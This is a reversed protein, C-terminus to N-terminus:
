SPTTMQQTGKMQAEIGDIASQPTGGLKLFVKTMPWTAWFWIAAQAQRQEVPVGELLVNLLRLIQAVLDLV